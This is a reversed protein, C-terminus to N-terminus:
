CVTSRSALRFHSLTPVYLNENFAGNFDTWSGGAAKGAYHYFAHVVFVEGTFSTTPNAYSFRNPNAKAWAFIAGINAPAADRSIENTNHFFVVQAVNYPMEYGQTPTGQDFAIVPSFWDFNAASPVRNAWPGYANGGEKLRKFNAKNIWILDVTGGCPAPAHQPCGAIM